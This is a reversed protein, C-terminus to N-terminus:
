SRVLPKIIRSYLNSPERVLGSGGKAESEHEDMEKERVYKYHSMLKAHTDM